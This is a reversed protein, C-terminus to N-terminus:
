YRILHERGRMEDTERTGAVPRRESAAATSGREESQACRTIIGIEEVLWVALSGLHCVRAL